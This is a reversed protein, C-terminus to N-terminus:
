SSDFYMALRLFLFEGKLAQSGSHTHAFCTSVVLGDTFFIGALTKGELSLLRSTCRSGFFQLLALKLDCGPGFLDRVRPDRKIWSSESLRCRGKGCFSILNDGV